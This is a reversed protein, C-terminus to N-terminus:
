FTGSVERGLQFSYLLCEKVKKGTIREFAGRYLALQGRYRNWLEEPNRIHDTKFDVLVLAGDEEFLLDAAGQLVLQEESMPPELEPKVLGAPIEVNFRVEREWHPSSAIRKMLGSSFFAEARPMDVAQAQAPTIYKEAVLRNLEAKSDAAAKKYDAYQLYAHLATGREAPTMGKEGLFAPRSTAAFRSEFKEGALDSVAEKACVGNLAAYPYRYNLEAELRRELEPDPKAEPIPEAPKEEGETKQPQILRIEWPEKAPVVIEEGSGAASRLERGGPHRLACLLLWDALSGASRVVYPQIRKEGPTLRLALKSLTKEANSLSALLILKEKARTMAVYLIRLEESMEDRTLELAVASRPMTNYRVGTEDKLRTGLGLEPHLLVSPSERNFRHACGAVICVPFELGKSHHISMIRVVNASETLAAAASLDGSSKRMRDLFRLFGSLGSYGNAEFRRAYELLLRLNALRLDGNPMAQVLEFLGTKEFVERILRDSPMAASLTRFSEMQELFAAAKANGNKAVAAVAPYLHGVRTRIRIEAMDDTTFGYIPSMMASLLPIDQVPNDVVQLLSLAIGVEYAEFFGGSTDAWAPIGLANLERVYDHAPRNASRLLVCFDRYVAPREKGNETIRPTGDMMSYILEAIRRSEAVIASRNEDDGASLDIVDLEAAPEELPPYSAGPVLEEEATYDLEGAQRSMLQRFVFNVADTVGPRSRFNRGLVVCAPYADQQADYLPFRARKELFIQPMAQRFRYISQKVDGVLFLNEGNRSVANFIMDQTENTDQYEDVMVEDFAASLEEAEPTREYGSETERVLLNLAWHELDSFDAARRERKKRDLIESFRLTVEFLKSVIPRLSAIEKRCEEDSAGLLLALKAVTGKVEKRAASVRNKVPDDGRGRLPKLKQWSFNAAIAMAGDWNSRAVVDRLAGLGTLDSRLADGYAAFLAEDGETQALSDRTLAECYAIADEAFTLITKGWVTDAASAPDDYLAAKESLWRKPFPHSRVFDYLRCITEAVAEDDRGSSFSEVFDYFQLDGKAYFEELTESAAEARLIAIEGDDLVRVDPSVGLRFFNQRVLDSCFSDVTSIHARALLLQQRQLRANFPDEELMRSLEAAIRGRMEAAAAKTFTVVLLRDADTPHDADTIREVVRQVLVATKGSGAAASVLLTGGRARIANLQEPTWNRSM